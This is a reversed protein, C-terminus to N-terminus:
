RKRETRQEETEDSNGTSSPYSSSTMKAQYQGLKYYNKINRDSTMLCILCCVLTDLVANTVQLFCIIKFKIKFSIDYQAVWRMYVLTSQVILMFIHGGVMYLNLSRGQLDKEDTDLTMKRTWYITGGLLGASGLCCLISSFGTIYSWIQALNM